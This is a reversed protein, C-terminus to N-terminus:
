VRPLTNYQVRPPSYHQGKPPTATIIPLIHPLVPVPNAIPAPTAQIPVPEKMIPQLPLAQPEETVTKLSPQTAAQNLLKSLKILANKTTDGYQLYPLSKPTEQLLALIELTAQILYDETTTKPFPIEKPFFDITYTDRTKGTSPPFRKVCQYHELSPGVYWGEEDHYAWSARKDSKLHSIVKTGVHALPAQNFDYNGFLYAYLSLEPNVRSNRLLNLTIQIQPLM